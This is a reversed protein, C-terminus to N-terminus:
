FRVNRAKGYTNSRRLIGTEKLIIFLNHTALLPSYHLNHLENHLKTMGKTIENRKSGSTIRLMGNELVTL